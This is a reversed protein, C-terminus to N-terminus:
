ASRALSIWSPGLAAGTVPGRSATARVLLRQDSNHAVTAIWGLRPTSCGEGGKRRGSQSKPLAHFGLTALFDSEALRSRGCCSSRHCLAPFHQWSFRPGFYPSLSGRSPASSLACGQRRACCSEAPPSALCDLHLPPGLNIPLIIKLLPIAGPSTSLPSTRLPLRRM